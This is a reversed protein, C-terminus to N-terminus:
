RTGSSTTCSAPSATASRPGPRSPWARRRRGCSGAAPGPRHRVLLSFAVTLATGALWAGWGPDPKVWLWEAAFLLMAGAWYALGERPRGALVCWGALLCVAFWGVNSSM